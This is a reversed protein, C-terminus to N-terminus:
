TPSSTILFISIRNNLTSQFKLTGQKSAPTSLLQKGNQYIRYRTEPRLNCLLHWVRGHGTLTYRTKKITDPHKAFLVVKAGVQTGLLNGTESEVLRTPAMTDRKLSPHLVHLFNNFQSAAKPTVELRWLGYQNGDGYNYGLGYGWPYNVRALENSEDVGEIGMHRFEQIVRAGVPIDVGPSSKTARICQLLKAPRNGAATKGRCFYCVRDTMLKRKARWAYPWVSFREFVERTPDPPQATIIVTPHDPLGKTSEVEIDLPGSDDPKLPQRLRTTVWGGLRRILRNGEKPLLTKCSLSARQQKLHILSTDDSLHIGGAADGVVVQYGGDFEPKARLHLLWLKKFEAKTSDVRDFVIFYDQDGDPSRLYVFERQVLEVKPNNNGSTFLISNYARTADAAAYTYNRYHEFRILGGIDRYNGNATRNYTRGWKKDKGIVRQGGENTWGDFDESPDLILLNSSSITRRFFNGAHPWGPKESTWPGGEYWPMYNGSRALALEEGKAIMFALSDYHQHGHYHFPEAKFIAFTADPDDWFSRMSVWGIGAKKDFRDRDIEGKEENWGLAEALSLGLGKPSKPHISYDMLAFSLPNTRQYPIGGFVEKVFWMMLRAKHEEGHRLYEAAIIAFKNALKTRRSGYEISTHTWNDHFTAFYHQPSADSVGLRKIRFPLMAYILHKPLKVLVEHEFFFDSDTAIGLALFSYFTGGLQFIYNTGAAYGGDNGATHEMALNDVLTDRIGQILLKKAFGDDIGDGYFSLAAILGRPGPASRYGHHRGDHIRLKDGLRKKCFNVYAAREKETLAGYVWDYIVALDDPKTRRSNELIARMLYEAAIRGYEERSKSLGLSGTEDLAYLVAAERGKKTSKNVTREIKGLYRKKSKNTRVEDILKPIRESTLFVRPHDKIVRSVLDKAVAEAWQKQESIPDSANSEACSLLFLAILL